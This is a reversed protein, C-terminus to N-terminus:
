DGPRTHANDEPRHKAGDKAKRHERVVAIIGAGLALSSAGIGAADPSINPIHLALEALVGGAVVVVVNNVSDTPFFRQDRKRREALEAEGGGALEAIEGSPQDQGREQRLERVTTTMQGVYAELGEIRESQGAITKVQASLRQDLSAKNTELEDIRKLLAEEVASPEDAVHVPHSDDPHNEQSEAGPGATATDTAPEAGSTVNDRDRAAYVGDATDRPKWHADILEQRPPIEDASGIAAGIEAPRLAPPSDPAQDRPPPVPRSNDAPEGADDAPRDLSM